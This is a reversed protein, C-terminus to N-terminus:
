RNRNLCIPSVSLSVFSWLVFCFVAWTFFCPSFPVKPLFLFLSIIAAQSMKTLLRYINVIFSYILAKGWNKEQGIRWLKLTYMVWTLIPNPTCRPCKSCLPIIVGFSFLSPLLFDWPFICVIGGHGRFCQSQQLDRVSTQIYLVMCHVKQKYWQLASLCHAVNRAVM